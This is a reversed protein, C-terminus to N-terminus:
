MWSKFCQMLGWMHNTLFILQAISFWIESLTERQNRKLERVNLLQTEHAYAIDCLKQKIKFPTQKFTATILFRNPNDDDLENKITWVRIQKLINLVLHHQLKIM